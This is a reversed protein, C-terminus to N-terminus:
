CAPSTLAVVVVAQVFPLFPDAPNKQKQKQSQTRQEQCIVWLIFNSGFWYFGAHTAAGSLDMNSSAVLM